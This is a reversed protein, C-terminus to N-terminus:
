GHCIPCDASIAFSHEIAETQAFPWNIQEHSMSVRDPMRQLTRTTIIDMSVEVSM